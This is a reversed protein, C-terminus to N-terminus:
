FDVKHPTYYGCNDLTVYEFQDNIGNLNETIGLFMIGNKDIKTYLKKYLERRIEVSSFNSINKCFVLDFDPFDELDDKFNFPKFDIMSKITPKIEWISKLETFYVEKYGPQMGKSMAVENYRGSTALFLSSTSVETALIYFQEKSVKPEKKLAELILMAVSYPEQGTSAAVSWINIREKIGRRLENIYKPLILNKLLDWQRLDRFWMTENTTIADIVKDRLKKSPDKKMLIYLDKFSKCKTEKVLWSLRGEVLYLKDDGLVIGCEQQIYVRFLNFEDQNIVTKSTVM